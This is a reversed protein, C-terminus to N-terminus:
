NIIVKWIKYVPPLTIAGFESGIYQSNKQIDTYLCDCELESRTEKKYSSAPFGCGNRYTVKEIRMWDMGSLGFESYFHQFTDIHAEYPQFHFGDIGELCMEGLRKIHESNYVEIKFFTTKSTQYGYISLKQVRDIKHIIMPASPNFKKELKIAFSLPDELYSEPVEVYFRPFFQKYFVKHIHVAAKKGESTKGYFTIIPATQIQRHSFENFCDDFETKPYSVNFLQSCILLNM